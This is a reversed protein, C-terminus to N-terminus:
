EITKDETDEGEPMRLISNPPFVEDCPFSFPMMAHNVTEVQEGEANRIDQPTVTVPPRGPALIEITDGAFFRGRQTAYLRGNECKEVIGVVRCTSIYGANEYYQCANPHGFFFGTCYRRHSVKFVEDHIWEPLRYHAPDQLYTDMAMRYANTVVSVYYASKARGEFKFSTVGAEALKDIHDIMCMERANLIYTGEPTEEIPMPLGPRKEEVLAYKWRCPQSCAGRNADRDTFYASLLCRGSFSVCMAGHVFVEIELDEPTNRRIEAIEELSLERALVVRKAGMEYLANATAYNVIGTQTSMHIHLDPALKKVMGFVGLDAVIAADVGANVAEGIFQPLLKLEGSRPLTNVTLYVKVGRAHALQVAECLAQADFNPAGARMGFMNGGLYVADAGFDLAAQLRERDGAPALVEPRIM